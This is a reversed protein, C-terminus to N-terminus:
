IKMNRYKRFNFLISSFCFFNGACFYFSLYSKRFSKVESFKKKRRLCDVKKFRKYIEKGSNMIQTTFLSFCACVLDFLSLFIFYIRNTFIPQFAYSNGLIIYGKTDQPLIGDFEHIIEFNEGWKTLEYLQFLIRLCHM